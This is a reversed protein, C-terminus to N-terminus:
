GEYNRELWNYCRGLLHEQIHNENGGFVYLIVDTHEKFVIFEIVNREQKFWKGNERDSSYVYM